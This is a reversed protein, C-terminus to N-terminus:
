LNLFFGKRKLQFYKKKNFRYLGRPQSRGGERITEELPILIESEWMKQRFSQKSIPQGLLLEYMRQLQQLTFEKPLMYIGVPEYRVKRRLAELAKDVMQDELRTLMPRRDIACWDAPPAPKKTDKMVHAITSYVTTFWRRGKPRPEGFTYIQQMSSEHPPLFRAYLREAASELSEDFNPVDHPLSWIKTKRKQILLLLDTGDYGFTVLGVRTGFHKTACKRPRVEKLTRAKSSEM